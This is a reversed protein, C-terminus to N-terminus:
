IGEVARNILKLAKQDKDGWYCSIDTPRLIMLVLDVENKLGQVHHEEADVNVEGLGPLDVLMLKEVDVLFSCKIEVNKVALYLRSCNLNKEEEETPYAVWPRLQTLDEVTKIGGNLHMEYSSLAAHMDKLRGLLGVNTDTAVADQNYDFSKFDEFSYVEPLNLERHFPKILEDIFNKKDRLNLFAKQEYSNQLRSRVATVPIGKGTPIAEEPLNGITQLLTSKGVRAQGSCGITVAKRALRNKANELRELASVIEGGWSTSESEFEKLRSKLEETVQPHQLLNDLADKLENIGGNINHVNEIYGTIVRLQEGRQEIIKDILPSIQNLTPM